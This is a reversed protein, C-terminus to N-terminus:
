GCHHRLYLVTPKPSAFGDCNDDSRFKPLSSSLATTDSAMVKMRLDALNGPASQLYLVLESPRLGALEHRM